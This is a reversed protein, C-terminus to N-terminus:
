AAMCPTEQTLQHFLGRVWRNAVAATVVCSHKGRARREQAFARWRPDHHVLRHAAEILTARLLPSGAKVLGADAQRQGSSANRPSLGCFRALQKGTRFRDFRGIEARMVWATVPGIGPQERLRAVVADDKTFEHLRTEVEKIRAITYDLHTLQHRAVWRGQESLPPEKKVWEIWAKTWPTFADKVRQERLLARLRLKTNRREICLDCRHRVLARMERVREPPLWVRPLYGVRTLDALMAADTRDSKDPTQKMRHVYGPHALDVSWGFRSVLEEGLDAAGCCAEIAVRKVEGLPAVLAHIADASDSVRRVALDKGAADKVCVQVISPHYDIGVFVPVSKM